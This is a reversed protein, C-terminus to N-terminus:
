KEMSPRPSPVGTLVGRYDQLKEGVVIGKSTLEYRRLDRSHKRARAKIVTLFTRLEGHEEYYRQLVIDHTLFSIPHPTFRFDNFPESVEVTLLITIGVGTM